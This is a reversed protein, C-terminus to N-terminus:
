SSRKKQGWGPPNRKLIRAQKKQGWGLPNCVRIAPAPQITILDLAHALRSTDNGDKEFDKSAKKQGGGWHTAYV